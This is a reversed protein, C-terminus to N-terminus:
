DHRGKSDKRDEDRKARPSPSPLAAVTTKAQEFALKMASSALEAIAKPDANTVATSAPAQTDHHEGHHEDKDHDEDNDEDEDKAEDEDDHKEKVCTATMHIAKVAASRIERLTRDADDLAKRAAETRADRRMRELQTHYQTFTRDVSRVADNRAHAEDACPSPSASGTLMPSSSVPILAPSAASPSGSQTPSATPSATASPAASASPSPSAETVTITTVGDQTTATVLAGTAGLVFVASIAGGKAHLLLEFLKGLL